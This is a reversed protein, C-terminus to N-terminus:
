YNLDINDRILLLKIVAKYSNSIALLLPMQDFNDTVQINAGAKLLIYFKAKQGYKVAQLLALSKFCQLLKNILLLLLM